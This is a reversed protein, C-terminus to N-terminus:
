KTLVTLSTGVPIRKAAPASTVAASAGAEVRELDYGGSIDFWDVVSMTALDVLMYGFLGGGTIVGAEPVSFVAPSSIPNASSDSAFVAVGYTVEGSTFTGFLQASPITLTGGDVDFTAYVPKTFEFYPSFGSTIMVNGKEANDSEAVTLDMIYWKGDFACYYAGEYTGVLDAIEYGFSFLVSTGFEASSNGYIDWILDEEFDFYVTAGYDPTEPLMLYVSINGEADSGMVYDVEATLNNTVSRGDKVYTVTAAGEGYKAMVAETTAFNFIYESDSVVDVDIDAFSWTTFDARGYVGYPALAGAENAMFGSKLEAAPNNASDVFMGAPYNITYYAGAPINEGMTITVTNGACAISEAPVTYTGEEEDFNINPKQRAFYRVTATGNALTVAESFTLTLTTSEYDSATLVPNVGDSTTVSKVVVDGVIGMPSAAVAYVQYTTNPKLNEVTVTTSPADAAKATGQKVGAYKVAYLTSPDPTAAVPSEDVLYSYYSAAGTPAVTVKFSNDAVESFAIEVSGATDPTKSAEPGGYLDSCSVALAAMAIYTFIRKM